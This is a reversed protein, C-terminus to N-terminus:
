GTAGCTRSEESRAPPSLPRRDPWGLPGRRDPADARHRAAARRGSRQHRRRARIAVLGRDQTRAAQEDAAGLRAQFLRSEFVVTRTAASVESAAGGMVGAIAQPRQADAIVLMEPELTRDVGDLTTITEGARRSPHAARHGGAEDLDFAHLPHGLEM